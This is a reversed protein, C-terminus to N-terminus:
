SKKKKKRRQYTESCIKPRSAMYGSHLEEYIGECGELMNWGDKLM